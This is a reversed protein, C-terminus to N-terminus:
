LAVEFCAGPCWQAKSGAGGASGAAQPGALRELAAPCQVRLGAGQCVAWFCVGCM